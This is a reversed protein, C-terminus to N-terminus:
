NEIKSRGELEGGCAAYGAADVWNDEKNHGTAVRAMKFLVMMASADAGSIDINTGFKGNIYGAWFRGITTLSHEPAGYDQTRGGSICKMAQELIFKRTISRQVGKNTTEESPESIHKLMERAIRQHSQLWEECDYTSTGDIPNGLKYFLPCKICEGNTKGCFDKISLIANWGDRDAEVLERLRDTPMDAVIEEIKRRHEAQDLFDGIHERVLEYPYHPSQCLNEHNNM